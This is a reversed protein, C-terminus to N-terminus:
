LHGERHIEFAILRGKALQEALLDAAEEPATKLVRGWAEGALLRSVFRYARPELRQVELGGPGRHVVLRVPGSSLDVAAMAADDGALVADAIEDAPYALELRSLSSHPVFRLWPHNEPQVDLLSSADLRPADEANAALSLAWEFRAVDALYPVGSAPEFGALFGALAGGYENLYGSRPPHAASFQEATRDFFDRGVLRDVAPYSMRLAETLTARCTNRYIRLREAAGFGDEVIHRCVADDSGRLLCAGFAKQLERLAPM